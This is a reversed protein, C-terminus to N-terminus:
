RNDEGSVILECSLLNLTQDPVVTVGRLWRVWQAIMLGAAISATFITSRSTCPASQAEQEPFLTSAYHSPDTREDCALVRIVEGSMRGDLFVRVQSHLSEWLMKRTTISDVCAFVVQRTNTDHLRIGHRRYREPMTTIDMGPLIQQCVKATAHVKPQGLDEPWYGQAALNEVAVFDHDYLTMRSVGISALQLAVQRGIAGVGIVLAHVNALKDAPILGRQRIDRDPFPTNM